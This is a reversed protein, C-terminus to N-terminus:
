NKETIPGTWEETFLEYSLREKQPVPMKPTGIALFGMFRYDLADFGLGTQFEDIYTAIGTSWFAGYGLMHTANLINTVAAGTALMRESESIKTNSYDIHCAVAIIMPVEALWQRTAAEKDPNFPEASAQKLAISFDAFKKIAEGRIIKFRWPRLAGHDPASMATQLILALEEDSPAPATVMKMSNRNLLYNIAENM